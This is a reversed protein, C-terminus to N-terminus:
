VQVSHSLLRNLVSLQTTSRSASKFSNACSFILQLLELLSRLNSESLKKLSTLIDRNSQVKIYFLLTYM